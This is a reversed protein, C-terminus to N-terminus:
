GRARADAVTSIFQELHGGKVTGLGASIALLSVTAFVGARRPWRREVFAILGSSREHRQHRRSKAVPVFGLRARLSAAADIVAQKLDTTQRPSRPSRALRGGGDM